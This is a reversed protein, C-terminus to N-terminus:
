LTGNRWWSEAKKTGKIMVAQINQMSLSAQLDKGSVADLDLALALM